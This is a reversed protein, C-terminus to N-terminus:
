EWAQRAVFEMALVALGGLVGAIVTEKNLKM